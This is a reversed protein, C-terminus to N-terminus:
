LIGKLLPFQVRMHWHVLCFPHMSSVFLVLVHQASGFISVYNIFYNVHVPICFSGPPQYSPTILYLILLTFKSKSM